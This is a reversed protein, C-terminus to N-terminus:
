YFILGNVYKCPILTFTGHFRVHTSTNSGFNRLFFDHQIFSSSFGVYMLIDANLCLFFSVHVSFERLGFARTCVASGAKACRM